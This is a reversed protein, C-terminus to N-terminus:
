EELVRLEVRRNQRRGQPTANSAVPEDEGYGRATVRNQDVGATVLYDRVTEARRQSLGINYDSDGQSDTHGAVEVRLGPNDILTAAAAALRDDDGNVASGLLSWYRDGEAANATGLLLMAGIGILISKGFGTM